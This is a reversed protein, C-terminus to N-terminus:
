EACNYFEMENKSAIFKYTNINPLELQIEHRQMSKEKELYKM